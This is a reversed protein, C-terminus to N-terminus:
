GSTLLDFLEIDSLYVFRGRKYQNFLQKRLSQQSKNLQNTLYKLMPLINKKQCCKLVNNNNGVSIMLSRFDKDIKSFHINTQSDIEIIPFLSDIKIWLEQVYNWQKLVEEVHQLTSQWKSIEDLFSGASQNTQLIELNIQHDEIEIFMKDLNSLLNIKDSTSVDINLLSQSLSGISVRSKKNTSSINTSASKRQENTQKIQYPVMQFTKSLWIEEYTKLTSELQFDKEARKVTARIEDAHDQFSLTFLKGFTLQRFTDSDMLTNGGTLRILQKWHRTRLASNSLDDLLQACIKIRKIHDETFTYIDWSRVLKPLSQLNELHKDSSLLVQKSDLKQWQEQKIEELNQRIDRYSY